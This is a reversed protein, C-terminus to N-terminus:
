RCFTCVLDDSAVALREAEQESVPLLDELAYPEGCCACPGELSEGAKFLEAMMERYAAPRHQRLWALAEKGRVHCEFGQKENSYRQVPVLEIYAFVKAVEENWEASDEAVRDSGYDGGFGCGALGVLDHVPAQDLWRRADFNVEVGRDDAHAEAPVEPLLATVDRPSAAPAEKEASEESFSSDEPEDQPEGQGCHPCVSGAVFTACSLAEPRPQGCSPCDAKATAVPAAFRELVQALLADQILDYCIELAPQDSCLEAPLRSGLERLMPAAEHVTMVLSKLLGRVPERTILEWAAGELDEHPKAAAQLAAVIGEVLAQGLNKPLTLEPLHLMDALVRLAEARSLQELVFRVQAEVGANNVACAQQEGALRYTLDDLAAQVADHGFQAQLRVALIEGLEELAEGSPLSEGAQVVPATAVPAPTAPAPTPPTLEHRVIDYDEERDMVSRMVEFYLCLVEDDDAPAEEPLSPDEDCAESWEGRAYEAIQSEVQERTAGVYTNTGHRHSVLGVYVHTPAAVAAVPAPAVPAVIEGKRALGLFTQFDRLHALQGFIEQFDARTLVPSKGKPLSAKKAELRMTALKHARTALSLASEVVEPRPNQTKSNM